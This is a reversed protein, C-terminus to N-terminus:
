WIYPVFRHRVRRAYDPYDSYRETLWHEELSAKLPFFIAVAGSPMLPWPSMLLSWAFAILIVGGYIPHRVRAYLGGQKLVARGHPRPLPTMSQGLSGIGGAMLWAGTAALVGAGVLRPLRAHGPWRPGLLGAAIVGGLLLSQILVWGEGRSGLSPLRFRDDPVHTV